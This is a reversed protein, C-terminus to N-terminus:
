DVLYVFLLMFVAAISSWVINSVLDSRLRPVFWSVRVVAGCQVTNGEHLGGSKRSQTAKGKNSSKRRSLLTLNRLM